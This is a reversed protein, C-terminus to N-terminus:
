QVEEDEESAVIMATSDLDSGPEDPAGEMSIGLLLAALALMKDIADERLSSIPGELQDKLFPQVLDLRLLCRFAVGDSPELELDTIRKLDIRTSMPAAVVRPFLPNANLEHNYLIVVPRKNKYERPVTDPIVVTQDDVLYIQGQRFERDRGQGTM